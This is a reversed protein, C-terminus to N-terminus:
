HKMIEEAVTRVVTDVDQNVDIIVANAFREKNEILRDIQKQIEEVSVEKKREYLTAADGILLFTIAPKPILPKFLNLVADPINLRYRQKDLYYDYYYRDFEVLKGVKLHKRVDFWYGLIYDFNFYMFKGFSVFTNYPKKGHPNSCVKGRNENSQKNPSKIFWPRWHYYVIEDESFRGGLARPLNNIITTKGSGDTGEFVVMLGKKSM